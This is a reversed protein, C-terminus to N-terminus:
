DWCVIGAYTDFFLENEGCKPCPIPLDLSESTDFDLSYDNFVDLKNKCKPCKYITEYVKDGDYLMKVHFREVLNNCKDCRLIEHGFNTDGCNNEDANHNDLLDILEKRKIHNLSGKLSFDLLIRLSGYLMGIGVSFGDSYDCNKCSITVGTGM